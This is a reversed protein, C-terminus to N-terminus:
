KKIAKMNAKVYEYFDSNDGFYEIVYVINNKNNILFAFYAKNESSTYEVAKVGDITTKNVKFSNITVSTPQTALWTRLYDQGLAEFYNYEVDAPNKDKDYRKLGVVSLRNNSKKNKFYLNSEGLIPHKTMTLDWDRLFKLTWWTDQPVEAGSASEVLLQKTKYATVRDKLASEAQEKTIFEYWIDGSITYLHLGLTDKVFYEGPIKELDDVKATGSHSWGRKPLEDKYFTVINNWNKDIPIFYVSQGSSLFRFLEQQDYDSYGELKLEFSDNNRNVFNTFAFESKPYEPIGSLGIVDYEKPAEKQPLFGGIPTKRIRDEVLAAITLQEGTKLSLAASALLGLVILGITGFILAFVGIRIWTITKERLSKQLRQAAHGRPADVKKRKILGFFMTDRKKRDDAAKRRSIAFSETPTVANKRPEKKAFPNKFLGGLGIKSQKKRPPM